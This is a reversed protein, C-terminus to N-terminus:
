LQALKLIDNPTTYPHHHLFYVGRVVQYAYLDRDTIKNTGWGFSGAIEADENSKLQMEIDEERYIVRVACQTVCYGYPMKATINLKDGVEVEDGFKWHSLWVMKEDDDEDEYPIGYFTPSYSWNISTRENHINAYHGAAQLWFVEEDRAYVICLSIGRIKHTPSPPSTVQISHSSGITADSLWDPVQSAPLFTSSIGCEYLVQPSTQRERNAISNFMTLEINQIPELDLLGLEHLTEIDVDMMPVLKFLGDVEALESCGFLEVQLTLLLNPLNAIRRLSSCGEAKLEELNPPLKPLSQLSACRDLTLSELSTLKDISEPLSSIPNGRLDLNQLSYLCSLDGPLSGDSLNCDALSLVLLYSPLVALSFNISRPTKIPLIRSVLTSYWPGKSDDPLQKVGIGDAYLIKLSELEGLERPLQYLKSCGSINLKKLAKLSSIANPLKKLNICQKLNLSVLKQLTGVSEGIEVLKVCDKVKLIELSPLGRFDPTKVLNHNHSLNLLKLKGLFRTGKWINVLRSNRIDLVVLKGLHFDDPIYKLSFGRWFLWVLKKPFEDYDGNVKVYNLQLLKLKEM